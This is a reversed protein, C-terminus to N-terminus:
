GPRPRRVDVDHEAGVVEGVGRLQERAGLDLARDDLDELLVLRVRRRERGAAVVVVRRPDRDLDAAVVGAGEADHRQHAAGLHAAPHAVDHVLDLLERGVADGLDRQEALVHVGVPAVEAGALVARLEGVQQAGDVRDVADLPDPERRRVRLVQAGVRDRRHGLADAHALVQVQRELGPAVVDEGAHVAAVAGVAVELPEGVARAPM